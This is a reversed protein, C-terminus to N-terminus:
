KNMIISILIVSLCICVALLTLKMVLSFIAWILLMEILIYPLLFISMSNKYKFKEAKGIFGSEYGNINSKDKNQKGILSPIKSFVVACISIVLCVLFVTVFDNVAESHASEM